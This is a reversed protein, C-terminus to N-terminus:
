SSTVVQLLSHFHCSPINQQTLACSLLHVWRRCGLPLTHCRWTTLAKTQKKPKTKQTTKKKLLKVKEAYQFPCVRQSQNQVDLLLTLPAEWHICSCPVGAQRAECQTHNKVERDSDKSPSASQPAGLPESLGTKMPYQWPRVTRYWSRCQQVSVVHQRCKLSQKTGRKLKRFCPKLSNKM